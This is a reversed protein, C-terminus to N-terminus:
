VGLELQGAMWRRQRALWWNGQALTVWCDRGAVWGLRVSLVLRWVWTCLPVPAVRLTTPASQPEAEALTEAWLQASATLFEVGFLRGDADFDLVLGLGDIGSPPTIAPSTAVAGDHEVGSLLSLYAVDLQPDHTLRM